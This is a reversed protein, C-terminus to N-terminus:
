VLLDDVQAEGERYRRAIEASCGDATRQLRQRSRSVQQEYRVLRGMGTTLEVDTRATLDSLEVEGMMEAALRRCEESRPTALTVHRASSRQRAPADALIESLREVVSGTTATTVVSSSTPGRGALEARLIDIRGQLLRRVYSLDAEERQADRRLTRLEPLSLATLDREPPDAPPDAPLEPSDTRQLPARPAELGGLGAPGSPGGRGSPCTLAATGFSRGTSPTSM